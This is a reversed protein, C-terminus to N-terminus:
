APATSVPSLAAYTNRIVGFFLRAPRIRPSNHISETVPAGTRTVPCRTFVGEVELPPMSMTRSIVKTSPRGKPRVVRILISVRGTPRASNVIISDGKRLSGADVSPGTAVGFILPTLSPDIEFEFRRGQSEMGAELTPIDLALDATYVLCLGLQTWLTGSSGHRRALAIRYSMFGVQMGCVPGLQSVAGASELTVLVVDNSHMALSFEYSGTKAITVVRDSEPLDRM